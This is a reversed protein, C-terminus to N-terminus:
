EWDLAGKRLVYLYGAFTVGVFALMGVWIFDGGQSVFDRFVIAWPYFFVIEVDFLLFLIAVVYFRVSMRKQRDHDTPPVGCEVPENKIQNPLKPGILSTLGLVAGGILIGAAMMILVPIYQM